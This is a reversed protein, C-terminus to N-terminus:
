GQCPEPTFINMVHTRLAHYYVVLMAEPFLAVIFVLYMNKGVTGQGALECWPYM